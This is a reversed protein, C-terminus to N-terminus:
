RNKCRGYSRNLKAKEQRKEKKSSKNPIRPTKELIVTNIAKLANDVIEANKSFSFEEGLYRLAFNYNLRMREIKQKINKLETLEYDNVGHNIFLRCKRTLCVFDEVQSIFSGNGILYMKAKLWCEM